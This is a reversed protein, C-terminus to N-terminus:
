FAKTYSVGVAGQINAFPPNKKDVTVSIYRIRDDAACVQNAIDQAVTELLATPTNMRQKVLEFIKEYNITDEIKTVPGNEELDVKINIEYENGLIREEEHLGHFSFFQLKNLHISFM